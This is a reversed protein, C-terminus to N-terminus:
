PADDEGELDALRELGHTANLSRVLSLAVATMGVAVVIGTLVLAHPVPDARETANRDAIAVLLLFAASGMINLALIRRVLHTRTLLAYFSIGLLGVATLGYLQFDTM